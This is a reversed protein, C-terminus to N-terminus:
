HFTIRSFEKNINIYENDTRLCDGLCIIGYLRQNIVFYIVETANKIFLNRVENFLIQRKEEDLCYVALEDINRKKM